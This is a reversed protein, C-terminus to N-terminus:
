AHALILSRLDARLAIMARRALEDVAAATARGMLPAVEAAPRRDLYRHRIVAAHDASLRGLSRHVAAWTEHSAASQSPTREYVALEHLLLVLPDDALGAETTQRSARQRQLLRGMRRRAVTFLWRRASGDDVPRFEAARGLADCCVEQFVDAPDVHGRVAAPLRRDVYSRLADGHRFLALMLPGPTADDDM